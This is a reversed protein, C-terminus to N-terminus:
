FQAVSYSIVFSNLSEDLNANPPMMESDDYIWDDANNIDAVPDKGIDGYAGLWIIDGDTNVLIGKTSQVLSLSGCNFM